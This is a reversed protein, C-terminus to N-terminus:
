SSMFCHDRRRDTDPLLCGLACISPSVACTAITKQGGVQSGTATTTPVTLFSLDIHTIVSSPHRRTALHKHSTLSASQLVLRVGSLSTTRALTRLACIQGTLSWHNTAVVDLPAFLPSPRAAAAAIKQVRRHSSSQPACNRTPVSEGNLRMTQGNFSSSVTPRLCSELPQASSSGTARM